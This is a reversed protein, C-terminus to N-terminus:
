RHHGLSKGLNHSLISYIYRMNYPYLAATQMNITLGTGTFLTAERRLQSLSSGLMFSSLNNQNHSVRSKDPPTQDNPYKMTSKAM